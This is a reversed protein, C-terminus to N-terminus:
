LGSNTHNKDVKPKSVGARPTFKGEREVAAVIADACRKPGFCAYLCVRLSRLANMFNLANICCAYKIATQM